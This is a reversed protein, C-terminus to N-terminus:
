EKAPTSFWNGEKKLIEVLERTYIVADAPSLHSDEPCVLGATGPYDAYYYGTTQTVALLKEWYQRRPYEKKEKELMAGSSPLRVFVIAVGRSRLRDISKKIEELYADLVSGTIPIKKSAVTGMTWTERKRNQLSTDALFMPTLYSQRMDDSIYYERPLPPRRPISKRDPIQLDALLANLGFKGEELFVFKSELLHNISVGAKQAPTENKYYRIGDRASKETRASDVAFFVLDSIGIILKGRFKEDAALHHLIPRPTTGVLALQVAHEGTLKEWTAIDLDFKIRSDGIFVTTNDAPQYIKKREAAWIFKDDNYSVPFGKHRWYLEWCAIFVVVIALMLIAAKSLPSGM